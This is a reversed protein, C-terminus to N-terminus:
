HLDRCDNTGVQNWGTAIEPAARICNRGMGYGSIHNERIVNGRAPAPREARRGLYIGASLLGPEDAWYVCGPAGPLCRALNLNLLRNRLVLHSSGILFIGGYVAGDIENEVIRIEESQMEPNSNNLVIGFHGHPYADRGQRNVCTNARVEGHHFGDLDICKGNVEEFRNFAYVCRDTNGASDIAVPTAGPDVEAIPYGIRSGRNREVRIGTAHGVQIADRALEHFENEAIVGDRNRPSGYCSHTWIGNGRVNRLACRRVEFGATGEEILIGGTTNNRGAADLSGSNEIRVREIRVQRSRAVLIAFGAVERFDLGSIALSDVDEALLGNDESFRSFPVDSPPLGAPRALAARNGDMTLNAIRVRAASKVRLLARGRFRPAARLVTGSAAGRIELDRAGEPVALESAIEFVGAPLVVLGTRPAERIGVAQWGTRAGSPEPGLLSVAALVCAALAAVARM